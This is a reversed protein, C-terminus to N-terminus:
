SYAYVDNQIKYTAVVKRDNRRQRSPVQVIEWNPLILATLPLGFPVGTDIGVATPIDGKKDTPSFLPKTLVSHGFIVTEPGNWYNTWFKYHSPAKSPWFTRKTGDPPYIHQAHLLHLRSQAEIPINPYAGAHVVVANYEPLRIYLPLTKFYEFHKPELKSATFIHSSSRYPAKSTYHFLHKEEHNGLVSEHQMALEVCQYPMPGRDVLDGVFIVRDESTLAVKDLLDQAEEWCGHLDGIVITRKM